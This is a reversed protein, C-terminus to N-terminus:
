AIGGLDFVVSGDDKLEGYIRKKPPIDLFKRAYNYCIKAQGDYVGFTYDSEDYSPRIIIKKGDIEISVYPAPLLFDRVVSSLYLNRAMNSRLFVRDGDARISKGRQKIVKM